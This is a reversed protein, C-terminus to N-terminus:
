DHAYAERLPLHMRVTTGKGLVSHLDFSGGLVEVRQRMGSLGLRGKQAAADADFGPGDDTVEISLSDSDGKLRVHPNMCNAHRFTNALAEQLLRYLTIKVRSSTAVDPVTADLSVNAGTKTQYDRVVRGAIEELSLPEIDPLQLDASIACLDGLASEVAMRVPLVEEAFRADQPNGTASYSEGVSKLKMLAFGLDQGPGDHIDSSVRQLFTENLASAREAARSVREHLHANQENLATLQAVKDRLEHQQRVITRSGGRVVAFLLLYMVSMTGAIILWARRQAARSERDVDEVDSYFEAAAIVKGQRDAHVPTYTEILRPMNPQGHEAQEKADRESVESYIDGSLAAALGEDIPFRKGMAAADSSYLVYGDPRWVKLSIIRKGLATNALLNGLEERDADTLDTARALTQVHPAVFSDVYLATVGGMRHVVSDEVQEGVWWGIGLTGALMIPFSVLLFRESLSLRSFLNKM